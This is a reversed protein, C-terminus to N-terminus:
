PTIATSGPKVKIVCALYGQVSETHIVTYTPFAKDHAFRTTTVFFDPNDTTNTVPHFNGPLYPIVQNYSYAAFISPTPDSTYETYHQALWESAPKNCLGWYDMDYNGNAGAVGGILPSFYMYEYPHLNAMDYVVQVQTALAVIVLIGVLLPQRKRLLLTCLSLFGYAALLLLPPVLFLFQRMGDYLTTRLYMMAGLPLLLALSIVVLKSAMQRNKFLTFCAFLGGIIAFFIVAPPSGVILWGPTYYRPLNYAHYVHGAFPVSFAWPYKSMVRIANLINHVPDLAIYPWLAILTILSISGIIAGALVQKGLQALVRQEKVTSRWNYFWWGLCLLGLIGYWFIAVIRVADAFGLVFGLLVSLLLYKRKTDWQRMFFLLAWLVLVMASTFPVDKANNFMAGFFRPYLWLSLAALFAAWWGGLEFGCLAMAVIGIFAFLGTVIARTQWHHGFVQQAGAIVVDVVAGHEQISSTSFVTMFSTDRGLTEYWHLVYPAYADEETEDITIGYQNATTFVSIFAMLLLLSLLILPVTKRFVQQKSLKEIFSQKTSSERSKTWSLQM